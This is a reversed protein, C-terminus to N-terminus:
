RIGREKLWRAVPEPPKDDFEARTALQLLEGADAGIQDRRYALYVAVARAMELPPDPDPGIAEDLALELDEVASVPEDADEFRELLANLGESTGDDCVEVARHVVEALTLPQPETPM